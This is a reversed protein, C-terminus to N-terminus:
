FYPTFGDGCVKCLMPVLDTLAELIYGEAEEEEEDQEEGEESANELLRIIALTLDDLNKDFSAPGLTKIMEVLLEIAM